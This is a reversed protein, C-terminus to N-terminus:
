LGNALEANLNAQCEDLVSQVDQDTYMIKEYSETWITNMAATQLHGVFADNLSALAVSAKPDAKLEADELLAKRAPLEGTQLTWQKEVEESSLFEIFRTAAESPAKASMVYGWSSVCSARSDGNAPILSVGFNLDPATTPLNGLMAPHGLMMGILGQRFGAWNASFETNYVKDVRYLSAYEEVAAVSTPDDAFVFQNAAEDYFTGGKQEVFSVVEPWYGKGGWGSQTLNGNEDFKTMTRAWEFFEEWTQPGTEADLGAEAALDKNWFCIITQMDTPMGYYQDEYKLGDTAAAVFEEEIMESSMVDADLPQISGAEALKAVMGSQVQFVDPATDTALSPILKQTYDGEPIFECNVKIDPNAAEFEAVLKTMMEDRAASSHQWYTLTVQEGTQSEAQNAAQSGSAASGASSSNGGCGSLVGLLMVSSLLIGMARKM